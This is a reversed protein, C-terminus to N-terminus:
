PVAIPVLIATEKALMNMAFIPVSIRRLLTKLCVTQFCYMSSMKENHSILLGLMSAKM